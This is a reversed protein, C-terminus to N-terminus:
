CGLEIAQRGLLRKLDHRVVLRHAIEVAAVQQGGGLFIPVLEHAEDAIQGREALRVMDAPQESRELEIRLYDKEEGVSAIRLWVGALQADHALCGRAPRANVAQVEAATRRLLGRAKQPAQRGLILAAIDIDVHIASSASSAVAPA